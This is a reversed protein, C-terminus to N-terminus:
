FADKNIQLEVGSCASYVPKGTAKKVQEVFLQRNGNQSSAHILVIESVSNLDNAQLFKICTDLSMHAEIVRDSVVKHVRGQFVNEALIESDYNCEILVHNLGVFRNELYYTDTAFLLTGIEQHHVLFGLPEKADHKVPFAMITFGGVYFKQFSTIISLRHSTTQVAEVTGASTYVNVAAKLYDKIYKAHDGHEHSICCGVIKKIDFNMAKQVAEFRIGAELILCEKENELLYCNGSSSSGLVKLIM